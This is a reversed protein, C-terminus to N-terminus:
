EYGRGYRSDEAELIDQEDKWIDMAELEDSAKQINRFMCEEAYTEIVENTWMKMWIKYALIVCEAVETIEFARIDVLDVDDPYGPDGNPMSHCGPIIVQKGLLLKYQNDGERCATVVLAGNGVEWSADDHEDDMYNVIDIGLGMSNFLYLFQERAEILAQKAQKEPTM